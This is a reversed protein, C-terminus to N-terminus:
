KLKFSNQIQKFTSKYKKYRDKLTWSMMMYMDEDTEIFSILYKITIGENKGTFEFQNSKFNRIKSNLQIYDADELNEKFSKMQYNSYNELPSLSDNYIELGKFTNIFEEKSEDIVITYTEKYINAYKFSAEENLSNMESMYKPVALAYKKNVSVIKLDEIKVKEEGGIAAASDIIKKCSTISICIALVLFIKKKM